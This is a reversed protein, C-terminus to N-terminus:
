EAAHRTNRGGAHHNDAAPDDARVRRPHGDAEARLDRDQVPRDRPQTFKVVQERPSDPSAEGGRFRDFLFNESGIDHDAGNQHGARARRLQDGSFHQLRHLRTGHDHVNCDILTAAELGGTRRGVGIRGILDVADDM